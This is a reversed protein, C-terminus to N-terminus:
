QFYLVTKLDLNLIAKEEREKKGKKKSIEILEVVDLSGYNMEVEYGGRM